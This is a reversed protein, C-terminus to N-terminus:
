WASSDEEERRRGFVVSCRRGFGRAYQSGLLFQNLGSRGILEGFYTKHVWLRKRCGLGYGYLFGGRLVVRWRELM